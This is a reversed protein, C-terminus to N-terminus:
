TGCACDLITKINNEKFVVEFFEKEPGLYDKIDGFEDYDYAFKEYIDKMTNNKKPLNM